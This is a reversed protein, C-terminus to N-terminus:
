TDKQNIRVMAEAGAGHIARTINVIDKDTFPFHENDITISEAGCKAIIEALMPNAMRTMATIVPQRNRTKGKSPNSYDM